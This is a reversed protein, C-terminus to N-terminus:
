QTTTNKATDISQNITIQANSANFGTSSMAITPLTLTGPTLKTHDAAESIKMSGSVTNNSFDVSLHADLKRWKRTTPMQLSLRGKGTYTATGTAAAATEYGYVLPLSWATHSSNRGKIELRDYSAVWSGGDSGTEKPKLYIDKGDVRGSYHEEKTDWTQSVTKGYIEVDFTFDKRNSSATASLPNAKLNIVEDNVLSVKGNQVPTM